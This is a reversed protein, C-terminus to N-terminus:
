HGLKGPSQTVVAGVHVPSTPFSFNLDKGKGLWFLGKGAVAFGM